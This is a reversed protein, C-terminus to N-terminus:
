TLGSDLTGFLKTTMLVYRPALSSTESSMVPHFACVEAEASGVIVSKPLLSFRTEEDSVWVM